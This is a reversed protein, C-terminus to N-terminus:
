LKANNKEKDLAWFAIGLADLAHEQKTAPIGNLLDKIGGCRALTRAHNIKKPTTGKWDRPTPLFCQVFNAAIAGAIFAVKLIDNPNGPNQLRNYIVPLEIATVYEARQFPTFAQAIEYDLDDLQEELKKSKLTFVGLDEVNGDADIVAYGTNRGPDIGITGV